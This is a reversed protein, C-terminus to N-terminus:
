WIPRRQVSCFKLSPIAPGIRIVAIILTGKTVMLSLSDPWPFFDARSSAGMVRPGAVGGGDKDIEGALVAPEVVAPFVVLAKELTDRIGACLRLAPLEDLQLFQRLFLGHRFTPSSAAHECVLVLNWGNARHAFPVVAKRTDFTLVAM